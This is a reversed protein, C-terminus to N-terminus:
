SPHRRSRARSGCRAPAAEGRAGAASLTGAAGYDLCDSQVSAAPYGLAGDKAASGYALINAQDYPGSSTRPLGRVDPTSLGDYGKPWLLLSVKPGCSAARTTRADAPAVAVALAVVLAVAALAIDLIGLKAKM